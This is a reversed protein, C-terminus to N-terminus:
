LKLDNQQRTRELKVDWILVYFGEPPIQFYKPTKIFFIYRKRQFFTEIEELFIIVSGTFQILLKSM